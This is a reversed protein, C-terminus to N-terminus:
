ALQFAISRLPASRKQDITTIHMADAVTESGNV